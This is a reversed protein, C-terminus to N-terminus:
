VRLVQSFPVFFSGFMFGQEWEGTDENHQETIPYWEPNEGNATALVRDDAYDIEYVCISMTNSVTFVGAMEPLNGEAADYLVGM